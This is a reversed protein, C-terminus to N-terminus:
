AATVHWGIYRNRELIWNPVYTSCSNEADQIAPLPIFNQEVNAHSSHVKQGAKNGSLDVTTCDASLCVQLIASLALLAVAPQAEAFPKVALSWLRSSQQGSEISTMGQKQDNRENLKLSDTLLAKAQSSVIDHAAACRQQVHLIAQIINASNESHSLTADAQLGGASEQVAQTSHSSSQHEKPTADSSAQWCHAHLDVSDLTASLCESSSTLNSIPPHSQAPTQHQSLLARMRNRLFSTDLNTPDNAWTLGQERCAAELIWKHVDLFPRVLLLPHDTDLFSWSAQSISALGAIGSGRSARILLNEAQDGAHHGTLLVSINRAKCAKHLLLYRNISATEMLRGQRPKQLWEMQMIDPQLGMAAAQSAAHQCEYQSEMRLAHNICLAAVNPQQTKMNQQLKIKQATAPNLLCQLHQSVSLHEEIPIPQQAPEIKDLASRVVRPVWVVDDCKSWWSVALALSLSDAGGSLAVAVGTSRTIGLAALKGALVKDLLAGQTHSMADAHAETNKQHRAPLCRPPM